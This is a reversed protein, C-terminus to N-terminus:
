QRPPRPWGKGVGSEGRRTGRRMRQRTERRPGRLAPQAGRGAGAAPPPPVAGKREIEEDLMRKLAPVEQVHKYAALGDFWAYTDMTVTGRQMEKRLAGEGVPGHEKAGKGFLDAIFWFEADAGPAPVAEVAPTPAPSPARGAGGAGGMGQQLAFEEGVAVGEGPPARAAVPEDAESEM